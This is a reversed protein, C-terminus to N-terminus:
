VMKRTEKLYKRDCYFQELETELIPAVSRRKKDKSIPRFGPPESPRKTVQFVPPQDECSRNMSTTCIVDPQVIDPNTSVIKRPQPPQQLPVPEITPQSNNSTESTSIWPQFPPPAASHIIDRSQATLEGSARFFNQVGNQM